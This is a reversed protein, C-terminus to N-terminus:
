QGWDEGVVQAPKINFGEEVKILEYSAGCDSCTVIEGELSDSPVKIEADCETCKVM